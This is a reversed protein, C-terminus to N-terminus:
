AIKLDDGLTLLTNLDSMFFLKSVGLELKHASMTPLHLFLLSFSPSFILLSFIAHSLSFHLVVKLAGGGGFSNAM